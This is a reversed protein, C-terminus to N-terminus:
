LSTICQARRRQREKTSRENRARTRPKGPPTRGPPVPAGDRNRIWSDTQQSDHPHHPPLIEYRLDAFHRHPQTETHDEAPKNELLEGEELDYTEPETAEPNTAQLAKTKDPKESKPSAAREASLIPVTQSPSPTLADGESAEQSDQKSRKLQRKGLRCLLRPRYSLSHRRSGMVLKNLRM